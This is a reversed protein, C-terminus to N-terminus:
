CRPYRGGPAHNCVISVVPAVRKGDKYTQEVYNGGPARSQRRPFHDFYLVGLHSQDVDLVEYATADPHYLPVVIMARFSARSATFATPWSSIGGQVNELSFHPRLMERTSRMNRNASRRPTIGGTGRLSSATPPLEEQVVGGDRVSARPAKSAPTWIEGAPRVRRRDNRGDPRGVYAAYSPYGLLHAKETRLRIFDNILQKNDVCQDGNNCRNIYAKYIEERLERQLM